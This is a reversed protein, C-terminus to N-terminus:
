IPWCGGLEAQTPSYFSYFIDYYFYGYPGWLAGYSAKMLFHDFKHFPVGKGIGMDM